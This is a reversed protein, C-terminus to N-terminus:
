QLLRLLIKIKLRSHFKSLRAQDRDEIILYRIYSFYFNDKYKDFMNAACINQEIIIIDPLIQYEINQLRSLKSSSLFKKDM